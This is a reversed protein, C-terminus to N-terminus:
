KEKLKISPYRKALARVLQQAQTENIFLSHHKQVILTHNASYNSGEVITEDCDGSSPIRYKIEEIM